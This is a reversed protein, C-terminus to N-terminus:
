PRGSPRGTGAARPPPRGDDPDVRGDQGLRDRRARRVQQGVREGARVQEAVHRGAHRDRDAVAASRSAASSAGAPPRDVSAARRAKRSSWKSGPSALPRIAASSRSTAATVSGTRNRTGARPPLRRTGPLFRRRTAPIGSTPRATRVARSAAAPSAPPGCRTTQLVSSGAIAADRGPTPRRPATRAAPRVEGVSSAVETSTARWASSRSSRRVADNPREDQTWGVEGSVSGASEPPRRATRGAPPRRRRRADRRAMRGAHCWRSAAPSRQASDRDVVTPSRRRRAAGSRAREVDDVRRRQARVAGIRRGRGSADTQRTAAPACRRCRRAAPGATASAAHQRGARDSGTSCRRVPRDAGTRDEDDGLGADVVVAVRRHGMASISAAASAPASATLNWVNSGSASAAAPRGSPRRGALRGASAPRRGARSAGGARGARRRRAPAGAGHPALAPEDEERGREVVADASSSSRSSTGANM